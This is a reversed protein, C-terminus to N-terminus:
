RWGFIQALIVLLATCVVASAFLGLATWWEDRSGIGSIRRRVIDWIPGVFLLWWILILGGLVVNRWTVICVWISFTVAVAATWVWFFNAWRSRKYHPEVIRSMFVRTIRDVYGAEPPVGTSLSRGIVSVRSGGAEPEVTAEILLRRRSSLVLGHLVFEVTLGQREGPGIGLAVGASRVRNMAEDPPESFFQSVPDGMLNLGPDIACRAEGM